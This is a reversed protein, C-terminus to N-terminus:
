SNKAKPYIIHKTANLKNKELNVAKYSSLSDKITSNLITINKLFVM